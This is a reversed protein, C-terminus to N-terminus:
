VSLVTERRDLYSIEIRWDDETTTYGPKHRVNDSVGFVPKRVALSLNVDADLVLSCVIFSSTSGFKICFIGTGRLIILCKM